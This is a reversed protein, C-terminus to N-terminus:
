LKRGENPMNIPKTKADDWNPPNFPVGEKNASANSVRDYTTEYTRINQAKEKETLPIIKGKVTKRRYTLRMWQHHCNVGGKFRWISYTDEGKAAFQSNVGAFGMEDIDERRYVVKNKANAVMNKCFTRSNASLRQPAYKYRILFIGKDDASKENPNAFRKFFEYNNSLFVEEDEHAVSEDVLEWLDEDIVEGKDKLYDLWLEEDEKTMDTAMAKCIAYAQDIDKGEKIQESMCRDMFEKEPEGKRRKSMEVGIEKETTEVNLKKGSLDTFELPQLTKFYLDLSHGNAHLVKNVAGIIENQYGRIVINDLLIFASKLEDANNGLGTNDKIGILMPSVIRHATLIKQAAEGSLFQYQKDADSLAIPTIDAKKDADENWSIIARGANSTGSFKEIIKSEIQQKIEVPPEGNNFNIFVSPSFGNKVNNVHFNGIEAELQAYDTGGEYDPPAFYFSGTVYPKIVLISENSNEDFGFAPIRKPKDSPKIKAWNHHYYWAEIDGESNAKEPRLTNVPWHYAKVYKTKDKSKVIKFAAMGLMKRDLCVAKIDEDSFITKFDLYGELKKDGSVADLGQGYTLESITKICANNTPSTHYLGILYNFYDNDEGYEVWEKRSNETVQPSQWSSFNFSTINNGM